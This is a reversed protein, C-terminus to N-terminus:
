RTIKEEKSFDDVSQFRISLGSPDQLVMANSSGATAGEAPTYVVNLSAIAPNPTMKKRGKKQLLLVGM